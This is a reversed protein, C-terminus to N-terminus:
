EFRECLKSNNINGDYGYPNIGITAGTAYTLLGTSSRNRKEEVHCQKQYRSKDTNTYSFLLNILLSLGEM